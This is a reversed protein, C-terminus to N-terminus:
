LCKTLSFTRIECCLMAMFLLLCCCCYVAVAVAAAGFLLLLLYCCCCCCCSSSSVMLGAIPITSLGTISILSIMRGLSQMFAMTGFATGVRGRAAADALLKQTLPGLAAMAIGSLFMLPLLQWQASIGGLLATCVGWISATLSLVMIGDWSDILIGWLPCAFAHSLRALSSATGLATPSLGLHSELAKYAAPLAQDTAGHLGAYVWTTRLLLRKESQSGCIEFLCSVLRRWLGREEEKPPGGPAGM